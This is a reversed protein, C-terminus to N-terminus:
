ATEAARDRAEAIAVADRYSSALACGCQWIGMHLTEPRSPSGADFDQDHLVGLYDAIAEAHRAPLTVHVTASLGAFVDSMPASALSTFRPASPADAPIGCRKMHAQFEAEDQADWEPSQYVTTAM